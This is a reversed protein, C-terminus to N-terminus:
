NKSSQQYKKLGGLPLQSSNNTTPTLLKYQRKKHDYNFNSIYSIKKLGYQNMKKM